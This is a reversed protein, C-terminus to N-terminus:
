AEKEPELTVIEGAEKDPELTVLIAFRPHDDENMGDASYAVSVSESPQGVVGSTVLLEDPEFKQEEKEM